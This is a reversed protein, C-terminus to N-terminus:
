GTGPEVIIAAYADLRDNMATEKRNGQVSTANCPRTVALFASAATTSKLFTRRTLDMTTRM